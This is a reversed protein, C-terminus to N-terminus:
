SRFTAVPTPLSRGRQSDLSSTLSQLIMDLPRLDQLSLRNDKLVAWAVLCALGALFSPAGVIGMALGAQSLAGGGVAGVAFMAWGLGTLAVGTPFLVAGAVRLNTNGPALTAPRSVVRPVWVESRVAASGTTVIQNMGPRLFLSCPASCAQHGIRLTVPDGVAPQLAFSVFRLRGENVAMSFDYSAGSPAV